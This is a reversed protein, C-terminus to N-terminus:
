AVAADVARSKDSKLSQTRDTMKLRFESMTPSLPSANLDGGLFVANFIAFYILIQYYVFHQFANQGKANMNNNKKSGGGAWM